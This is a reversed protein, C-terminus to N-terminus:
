AAGAQARADDARDLWGPLERAYDAPSPCGAFGIVRWQCKRGTKGSTM